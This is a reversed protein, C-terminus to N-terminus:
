QWGSDSVLNGEDDYNMTRVDTDCEDEGYSWQACSHGCAAYIGGMVYEGSIKKSFLKNSFNTKM